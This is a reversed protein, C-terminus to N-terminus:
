LGSEMYPRIKERMEARARRLDTKVKGLSFGTIEAIEEYSHHNFVQLTFVLRKDEDLNALTQKILVNLEKNLLAGEPLVEKDKFNDAGADELTLNQKSRRTRLSERTVNKAISFLWTSFKTEAWFSKDFGKFARVFTEQTLDEALDQHGVMDYIFSIIPRGYREFVQHFAEKDGSQVREVLEESSNSLIGTKTKSQGTLGMIDM